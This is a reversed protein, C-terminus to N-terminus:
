HAAGIMWSRGGDATTCREGSDTLLYGHQPDTFEVRVIDASLEVGASAVPVRMWHAGGDPSHYLIGRAGGAWIDNGNASLARFTTGDGVAVASWTLGSDGSRVLKGSDGIAWRWASPKLEAKTVYLRGKAKEAQVAAQMKFTAADKDQAVKAKPEASPASAQNTAVPRQAAASQPAQPPPSPAAPVACPTVPVCPEM